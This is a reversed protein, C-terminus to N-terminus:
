SFKLWQSLALSPQRRLVRSWPLVRRGAGFHARSGGISRELIAIRTCFPLFRLAEITRPSQNPVRRTLFAKQRPFSRLTPWEPSEWPLKVKLAEVAEFLLTRVYM